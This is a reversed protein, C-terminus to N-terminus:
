KIENRCNIGMVNLQDSISKVNQRPVFIKYVQEHDQITLSCYNKQNIEIAEAVTSFLTASIASIWFLKSLTHM